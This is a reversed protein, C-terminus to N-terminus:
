AWITITVSGAVPLTLSKFISCQGSYAANLLLYCYLLELLVTVSGEETQQRIISSEEIILTKQVSQTVLM